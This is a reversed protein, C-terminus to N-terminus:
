NEEAVVQEEGEQDEPVSEKCVNGSISERYTLPSELNTKKIIRCCEGGKQSLKSCLHRRYRGLSSLNNGYSPCMLPVAM